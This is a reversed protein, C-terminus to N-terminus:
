TSSKRVTATSMLPGVWRWLHGFPLVDGGVGHGGGRRNVPDDVVGDDHLKVDGAIPSVCCLLAALSSRGLPHVPLVLRRCNPLNRQRPVGRNFKRFLHPLLEPLVGRVRPCYATRDVM